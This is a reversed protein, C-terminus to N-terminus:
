QPKQCHCLLLKTCHWGKGRDGEAVAKVYRYQYKLGVPAAVLVAIVAAIEGLLLGRCVAVVIASLPALLSGLLESYV